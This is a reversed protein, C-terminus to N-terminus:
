KTLVGQIHPVCHHWQETVPQQLDISTWPGAERLSKGTQRCLECGGILHPWVLNIVRQYARMYWSYESLVHEYVYWRGGPRLLQYLERVHREPEPISCLCLVSVICDVSGPAIDGDWKKGGGGSGDAAFASSLDEIGVPVIEYVDELGAAKVAARLAGHHAANPEIGYIRTIKGRATTREGDGRGEAFVDVWLGAGAGIELVVGGVGAHAPADLVRGRAVRGDLLALVTPRLFDRTAPGVAAWFQAFWAARFGSPRRLAAALGGLHRITQPIYSASLSLFAWPDLLAWFATSTRSLLTTTM